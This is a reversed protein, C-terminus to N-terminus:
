AFPYNSGAFTPSVHAGVFKDLTQSPGLAVVYLAMGSGANAQGRDAGLVLLPSAELAPSRSALSIIMWFGPLYAHTTITQTGM